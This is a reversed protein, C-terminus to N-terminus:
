ESQPQSDLQPLRKFQILSLEPFSYPAPPETAGLCLTGLPGCLDEVSARHAAASHVYLITHRHTQVPYPLALATCGPIARVHEELLLWM